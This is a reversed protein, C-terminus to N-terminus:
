QRLDSRSVRGAVSAPPLHPETLPRRAVLCWRAAGSLVAPSSGQTFSSRHGLWIDGVVAVQLAAKVKM